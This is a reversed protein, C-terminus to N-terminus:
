AGTADELQEFGTGPQRARVRSSLQRQPFRPRHPIAVRLDPHNSSSFFFLWVWPPVLRLGWGPWSWSAAALHWSFPAWRYWRASIGTAAGGTGASRWCLASLSCLNPWSALCM